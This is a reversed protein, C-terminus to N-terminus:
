ARRAVWSFPLLGLRQLIDAYPGYILDHVM